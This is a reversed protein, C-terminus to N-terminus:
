HASQLGLKEQIGRISELAAEMRIRASPNATHIMILSPPRFGCLAVSEEIWTLVDYGTGSEAPGLDHDLSLATVRGTRLLTITETATATGYWGCPYPREDDLYVKM